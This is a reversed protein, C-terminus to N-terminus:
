PSVVVDIQATTWSELDVQTARQTTRVRTNASQDLLAELPSANESPAQTGRTAGSQAIVNFNVDPSTTAIVKYTEFGAPEGVIFNGSYITQGSAIEDVSEPHVAGDAQIIILSAYLTRSTGNTIVFRVEEGFRLRAAGDNVPSNQPGGGPVIRQLAVSLEGRMPSRENDLARVNEQRAKNSLVDVIGAALTDADGGTALVDYLPDDTTALAAYYSRTCDPRGGQRWLQGAIACGSRVAADWAQGTAVIEILRNDGLRTRLAEVLARDEGTANAGILDDLRVRFRDGVGAPSIIIAKDDLSIRRSPAGSLEATATFGDVQTIRANALRGSEGVLRRTQGSYIAVMSGVRLGYAEGADLQVVNDQAQIQIYPDIRDGAAGFVTREIDGEAQPHQLRARQTVATAVSRLTRGYSEAPARNLTQVLHYTFYGHRRTVGESVRIDGEYSLESAMSGSLMVYDRRRTLVRGAVEDDAGRAASASRTIPRAPPLERAVLGDVDRTGTGSHCSDLIFVSNNTHQALEGFLKNIEDDSIDERGPQRSDYAVLTEDVGDGEDHDLDEMISGHGSFYFVILANRNRSANGILHRRFANLIGEYTAREGELTLINRRAFGYREELMRRMLAVDNPPGRLSTLNISGDPLRPYEGIGVLLAYRPPETAVALGSSAADLTLCFLIVAAIRALFGIGRSLTASKMIIKNM